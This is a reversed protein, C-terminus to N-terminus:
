YAPVIRGSGSQEYIVNVRQGVSIQPTPGQAIAITNGNDLKVTYEFGQKNRNQIANGAVGGALAGVAGGIMQSNRGSSVANGILAGALAGGGAGVAAGAGIGEHKLNIKRMSIVTGTQVTNIRKAQTNTYTDGSYQDGCGTLLFPVFILYCVSKIKFMVIKIYNGVTDYCM